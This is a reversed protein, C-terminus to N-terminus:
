QFVDQIGLKEIDTRQHACWQTRGASRVEANRRKMEEEM